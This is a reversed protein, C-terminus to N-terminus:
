KPAMVATSSGNVTKNFVLVKSAMCEGKKLKNRLVGYKLIVCRPRETLYDKDSFYPVTRNSYYCGYAETM